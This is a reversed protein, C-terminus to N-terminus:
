SAVEVAVAAAAGTYADSRYSLVAQWSGAAVQPRPVALEGCYTNAADPTAPSDVTVTQGNRTLTLRCTGGEEVVGAVFGGAVVKGAAADWEAYTLRVPASSGTVTVPADTALTQGAEPGASTGAADVEVGETAQADPATTVPSSATPAATTGATQAAPDLWGNAVAMGALAVAVVAGAVVVVAAGRRRRSMRLKGKRM